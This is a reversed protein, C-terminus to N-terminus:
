ASPPNLLAPFDDFEWQDPAGPSFLYHAVKGPTLAAITASRTGYLPTHICLAELRHVLRRPMLSGAPPPAVSEFPPLFRDALMNHLTQRLKPWPERGHGELLALARAVKSFEGSDLRDNPLVHIGTPLPVVEVKDMGEHVYAVRMADSEGFILNFPNYDDPSLDGLYAEVAQTQGLRLAEVVVEGRSRRSKDARHYTRQNTLGVFFGAETAGMWSGGKKGDVGGIVRPSEQLLQPPTSPRAYYEDRNAAIIVPYDPHVQHLVVITCM